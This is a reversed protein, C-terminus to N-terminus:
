LPWGESPSGNIYQDIECDIDNENLRDALALVQQRHENSDHSYSIFVKPM